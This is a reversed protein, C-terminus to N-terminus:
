KLGGVCSSFVGVIDMSKEFGALVALFDYIKKKSSPSPPIGHVSAIYASDLSSVAHVSLTCSVCTSYLMGHLWQCCMGMSENNCNFTTYSTDMAVLLQLNRNHITSHQKLPITRDQMHLM